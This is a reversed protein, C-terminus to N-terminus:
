DPANQSPPQPNMEEVVSQVPPMLQYSAKAASFIYAPDIGAALCKDNLSKFYAIQQDMVTEYDVGRKACEIPVSTLGKSLEGQSVDFAYKADATINSQGQYRWKYWEDSAPLLGLQIAVSVRWGDMWRASPFLIGDRIAALTRNCKEVVVRMPAGGVRSPDLSFDRSWGLAYMCDRVISDMFAQQNSSPRDNKLAEISSGTGAKMYRITGSLMEEAHFRETACEGGGLSLPDDEASGTPNTEIISISAGIKQAILEMRRSDSWDQWHIASTALKPYGRLQDAYDPMFLMRMNYSSILVPNGGQDDTVQYGVVRGFENVICGDILTKGQFEGPETIEKRTDDSRVRHAPIIQFQPYGTENNPSRVLLIGVDGDRLVHLVILKRIVHMPYAEGAVCCIADHEYLWTEALRGWDPNDGDFQAELKGAAITAIEDLAGQVPLVNAYIARAISLLNRRTSGTVLRLIDRDYGTQMPRQQSGRASEHLVPGGNNRGRRDNIKFPLSAM